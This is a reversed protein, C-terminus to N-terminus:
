PNVLIEDVFLWAKHGAAPHGAPIVGVNVARVRVYRALQPKVEARVDHVLPGPENRSVDGKAEVTPPFRKEDLSLAVEVKAPLYIGVGAAQLCRAAVTQIETPAGLDIVAELDSGEFGLWEGALYDSTGVEGDTLAAGGIGPYRPDPPRKLSVPKGRAAHSVTAPKVRVLKEDPLMRPRLRDFHTEVDVKQVLDWLSTKERRLAMTGAIWPQCWGTETCWPGWEWDASSAWYDWRSFNFARYWAGDLEPHAESRVQIRCLFRALRDEAEAYFPDGTAAAAEHLGILAFNCSYLMDCVPDGDSQILSTEATGYAANSPIGQGGDGIVERIAGSRDQLAVLDDAIQRLWRRHEPTDDVRVLWALPLLLRSREITGSRLIWNWSDPYAHMTLRMGTKSRTLLPEFRTQEYAWLNCAWLWSQMHPSYHVHHGAWYSEWGRAQLDKEQVCAPRFGRVGTTRFNALIARAVAEDWRREGSQGAVAGVALLARANDDGWYSGPHDLSWGVLGYSPSKPDARPGAALPSKDFIYDLLNAARRANEPRSNAAADLALLMAVETTCDNRVAYRMPQSGDRHITSSFGELVGASGDGVPWEPRPMARVTNYSLSRELVEKPWDAHRLSRSAVIWEASRRVAQSEADPPLPDAPGFSPRVTPTWRLEVRRGDPHLRALITEWITRWAEVPLYRGRVFHSLKTTAVLLNGRPHDFLLPESATDALGFVATDMGAVKAVVLHSDAAKAPLYRCSSVLVIRMPRLREGFIDSTVVGREYKVDKPTGLKMDPLREPYEVYLRLRKQAAEDFVAPAIATPTDPYGDALVLVGSGDPAARVAEAATAFRPCQLRSAALIRYLDNEASCAFTWGAPGKRSGNAEESVAPSALAMAMTGGLVCLWAFSRPASADTLSNRLNPLKNEDVKM